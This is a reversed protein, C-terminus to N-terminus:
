FRGVIKKIVQLNNTNEYLLKANSSYEEYNSLIQRLSSEIEDEKTFDCCIGAHYLGVTYQLGPVESCLMPLGFGGYEYIKNPACFLNNLCSDEYNAIGIKAYSTVELHLPAPIYGLYITKDYIKTISDASIDIENGMLVLYIDEDLNKLARALVGLDRDLAIIGQYLVIDKDKIKNICETTKETSGGVRLKGPHFYPKNPMVFPKEPLNWWCKMIAARNEECAIVALADKIIKGISRKYFANDDYLELISLIYKKGKLLNSVAFASDATGFWLVDNETWYTKLVDEVHQKYKKFSEVKGLVGKRLRKINFDIYKVGKDEFISKVNNSCEGFGVIVEVGLDRLYCIQNICPPYLHIANRSFYIVKM